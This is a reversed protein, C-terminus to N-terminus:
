CVQSFLLNSVHTEDLEQSEYDYYDEETINLPLNSRNAFPEALIPVGVAGYFQDAFLLTPPTSILIKLIMTLVYKLDM